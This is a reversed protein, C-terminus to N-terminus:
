KSEQQNHHPTNINQRKKIMINSYDTKHLRLRFNKLLVLNVLSVKKLFYKWMDMKLIERRSNIYLYNRLMARCNTVVM